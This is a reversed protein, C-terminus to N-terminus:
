LFKLLIQMSEEKERLNITENTRHKKMKRLQCHPTKARLYTHIINQKITNIALIRNDEEDYVIKGFEKGLITVINLPLIM